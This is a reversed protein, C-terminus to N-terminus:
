KVCIRQYKDIDKQKRNEVEQKTMYRRGGNDDIDYWTIHEDYRNLSDKMVNCKYKKAKAQERKNRKIQARREKDERM